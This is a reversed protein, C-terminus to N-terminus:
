SLWFCISVFTFVDTKIANKESKSDLVILNWKQKLKFIEYKLLKKNQSALWFKIEFFFKNLPSLKDLFLINTRFNSLLKWM